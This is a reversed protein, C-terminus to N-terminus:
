KRPNVKYRIDSDEGTGGENGDRGYSSLEVEGGSSCCAYAFQRNWPDLLDKTYPGRWSKWKGTNEILPQLGEATTPYRGVDYNFMSLAGGLEMIRM